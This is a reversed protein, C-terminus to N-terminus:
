GARRLGQVEDLRKAYLTEVQEYGMALYFRKVKDPMSDSLHAMRLEKCGMGRAWTELCHYLRIGQGRHNENVYWFFEQCILEGSYLEPHMLGGIVGQIEGNSELVYIVGNGAELWAKWLAQFREVHFERLHKSAAYFQAALPALRALDDVNAPYIGM